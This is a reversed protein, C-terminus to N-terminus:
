SGVHWHDGEYLFSLNDRQYPKGEVPSTKGGMIYQTLAGTKRLDITPSGPRHSTGVRHRWFETGGTVTLQCNCGAKIIYVYGLNLGRLSTCNLQGVTNCDGKDTSVGDPLISPTGAMAVWDAGVPINANDTKYNKYEGNIPAQPEDEFAILTKKIVINTNLLDPNITFLIIWAGLAVLLGLIANIIREKGAGKVGPLESTMYQIGGMVIMVMAMVAAIGITLKIIANLYNGLANDSAVDIPEELGPLPALLTYGSSVWTGGATSCAVKTQDTYVEKTGEYIVTCSGKAEQARVNITTSFLGVLM